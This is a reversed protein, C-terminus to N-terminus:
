QDTALNGLARRAIEEAREPDDWRYKNVLRAAKRLRAALRLAESNAAKYESQGDKPLDKLAKMLQNGASYAVDFQALVSEGSAYERMAKAIREKEEGTQAEYYKRRMEGIVKSPKGMPRGERKEEELFREVDVSWPGAGGKMVGTMAMAFRKEEGVKDERGLDSAGIAMSGWNGFVNRILNDVKRADISDFTGAQVAKALRSAYQTGKRKGVPLQAEYQPVLPRDRFFSYGQSGMTEIIPQFGPMFVSEDVPLTTEIVTGEYGDFARDWADKEGRTQRHGAELSVDM